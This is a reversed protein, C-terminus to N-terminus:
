IVVTRSRSDRHFCARCTRSRAPVAHAGCRGHGDELAREVHVGAEARQLIV